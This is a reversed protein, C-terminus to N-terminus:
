WMGIIRERVTSINNLQTVPTYKLIEYMSVITLDTYLISVINHLPINGTSIYLTVTLLPVYDGCDVIM